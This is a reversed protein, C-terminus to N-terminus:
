DIQHPTFGSSLLKILNRAKLCETISSKPKYKVVSLLSSKINTIIIDARPTLKANRASLVGDLAMSWVLNVLESLNLREGKTSDLVTSLM